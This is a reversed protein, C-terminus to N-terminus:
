ISDLDMYTNINGGERDKRAEQLDKIANEDLDLGLLEEIKKFDEFLIIVEKPNGQEDVVFKKNITM